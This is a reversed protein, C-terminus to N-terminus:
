DTFIRMFHEMALGYLNEIYILQELELRFNYGLRDLIPAYILNRRISPIYAVDQLEFFKGTSLQIRVVGLFDVQVKTDDEMYVYQELSTPSRRNIVVQM